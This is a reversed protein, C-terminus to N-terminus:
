DEEDSSTDLVVRRRKSPEAGSHGDGAGSGPAELGGRGPQEVRRHAAAPEALPATASAPARRDDSALQEPTPVSVGAQSALAAAFAVNAATRSGEAPALFSELEPRVQVKSSQAYVWHCAISVLCTASVTSPPRSVSAHSQALTKTARGESSADCFTILKNVTGNRNMMSRHCGSRDSVETYSIILNGAQDLLRGDPQLTCQFHYTKKQGVCHFVVPGPEAVEAQFWLLRQVIPKFTNQGYITYELAPHMPFLLYHEEKSRDNNFLQVLETACYSHTLHPLHQKVPTWEKDRGPFKQEWANGYSQLARRLGVCATRQKQRKGEILYADVPGPADEAAWALSMEIGLHKMGPQRYLGSLDAHPGKAKFLKQAAEIFAMSETMVKEFRALVEDPPGTLDVAWRDLPSTVSSHQVSGGDLRMRFSYQEGRLAGMRWQDEAPILLALRRLRAIFEEVELVEELSEINPIVLLAVYMGLFYGVAQGDHWHQLRFELYRYIGSLRVALEHSLSKVQLSAKLVAGICLQQLPYFCDIVTAEPGPVLYLKQHLWLLRDVRLRGRHEILYTPSLKVLDCPRQHESRDYLLTLRKVADESSQCGCHDLRPLLDAVSISLEEQLDPFTELLEERTVLLWPPVVGTPDLTQQHFAFITGPLYNAWGQHCRFKGMGAPGTARNGKVELLVACFPQDDDALLRATAYDVAAPLVVYDGTNFEEAGPLQLRNGPSLLAGRLESATQRQCALDPNEPVNGWAFTNHGDQVVLFNTSM